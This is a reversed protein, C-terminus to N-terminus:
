FRLSYTSNCSKLRGTFHNNSLDLYEISPLACLLPQIEGSMYNGSVALFVLSLNWSSADLEGTLKNDRLDLLSINGSSLNRPQAGEFKNGDLQIAILKNSLNSRGGFIPGSLHNNSVRLISLNPLDTFLCAPMEGSFKNNSLEISDIQNIHRLAISDIQNIHCLSMPIEGSNNNSVDISSLSRSVSLQHQDAASRCYPEQIYGLNNSLCSPAMNLRSIWHSNNGLYLEIPTSGKAFLWNPMDGSLNNSGLSPYELHHQTALFEPNAIIGKDLDCNDLSLHKLQFRPVWGPVNVNVGLNVNESLDIEVLNSLNNLWIFSFRGSLDNHSLDLSRLSLSLNSSSSIPIAGQLMNFSLDLVEIHPLPFLFSPLIGGINNKRLYLERLNSLNKFGAFFFSYPVLQM